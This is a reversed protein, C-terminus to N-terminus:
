RCSRGAPRLFSGVCSSCPRPQLALTALAADVLIFEAPTTWGPVRWHRILEEWDDDLILVRLSERLGTVQRELRGIDHDHM